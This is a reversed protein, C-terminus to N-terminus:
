MGYYVALMFSHNKGLQWGPTRTKDEDTINSYQWEAKAFGDHIFEYSASFGLNFENRRLGYLFKEGPPFYQNVMESTGGKRIYESWLKFELGRMLRYDAQVFLQDANQGIYHGLLYGSNEYTQAQIFNSYVWPLIRTYEITLLLDQLLGYNQTGLTYGLQNREPDGKLLKTISLEDIFITSYVRTGNTIRYNIDAFFQSNGGKGFGNQGEYYHDVMRFFLVPVLYAFRFQDSYVISEGLSISLAKLPKIQVIHAAYYKDRDILRYQSLTDNYALSTKYFESSDPVLSNLFGHIYYFSLWDAPEFRLSFLPFSPAKDSLILKSRYGSGWNLNYKGISVSFIDTSFTVAGNVKSYEISKSSQKLIQIGQEPSFSKLSDLKDGREEKDRFDLNFGWNKGLSSYADFGLGWRKYSFGNDNSKLRIGLIPNLVFLFSDNKYDFLNWRRNEDPLEIDYDKLFWNLESLENDSLLLTVQRIENLLNLIESRTLPKFSLDNHIAGKLNMRSLFNYINNNVDVQVPQANLNFYIFFAMVISIIAKKFSFYKM